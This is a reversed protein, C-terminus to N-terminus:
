VQLINDAALTSNASAAPGFLLGKGKKNIRFFSQSVWTRTKHQATSHRPDRRPFGRSDRARFKFGKLSSATEVDELFLAFRTLTTGQVGRKTYESVQRGVVKNLPKKRMQIWCRITDWSRAWMVRSYRNSSWFKPEPSKLSWGLRRASMMAKKNALASNTRSGTCNKPPSSVSAKSKSCHM